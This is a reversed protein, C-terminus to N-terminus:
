YILELMFSHLVFGYSELLIGCWKDLSEKISM